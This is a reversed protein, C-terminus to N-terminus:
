KLRSIVLIPNTSKTKNELLGKTFAPIEGENQLSPHRNFLIAVDSPTIYSYLYQRDCDLFFSDSYASSMPLFQNTVTPRIKKLDYLIGTKPDYMIDSINNSANTIMLTAFFRNNHSFVHNLGFIADPYKKSVVDPLRGRFESFFDKPLSNQYPFVLLTEKSLGKKETITYLTNNYLQVYLLEEKESAKSFMNQVSSYDEKVLQQREIIPTYVGNRLMELQSKDTDVFPSHNLFISNGLFGMGDVTIWEKKEKVFSGDFRFIGMAANDKSTGYSAYILRESKNVFVNVFLFDGNNCSKCHPVKDIKHKFKGLRDFFLIGKGRLDFIIIYEETVWLDKVEQVISNSTQELPVYMVENFLDGVDGGRAQHIPLRLTDRSMDDSLCSSLYPFSSSSLTAIISMLLSGTIFKFFLKVKKSKELPM